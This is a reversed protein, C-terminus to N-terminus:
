PAQAEGIKTEVFIASRVSSPAALSPTPANYLTLQSM